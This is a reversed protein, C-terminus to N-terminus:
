DVFYFSWEGNLLKVRSSNTAVWPTAFFSADAKMESTTAYPTQTAHAVEKNVAFVSQDEWYDGWTTQAAFSSVSSILVLAVFSKRLYSPM